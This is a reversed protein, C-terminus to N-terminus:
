KGLCHSWFDRRLRKDLAKVKANADKILKRLKARTLSKPDELSLTAMPQDSSHFTPCDIRLEFTQMDVSMHLNTKHGSVKMVFEGLGDHGGGNEWSMYRLRGYLTMSAANLIAIQEIARKRIIEQLSDM